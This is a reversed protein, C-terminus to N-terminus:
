RQDYCLANAAAAAAASGGKPSRNTVSPLRSARLAQKAEVAGVFGVCLGLILAPQAQCRLLEFLATPASGIVWIAGCGIESVALRIAAASRTIQETDALEYSRPDSLYCHADGAIGDRTMMSDTIIPADAELAARGAELASERLVLDHAYNTDATAHIVRACVAHSLRPLHSLDCLEHVIRYSEREIQSVNRTM